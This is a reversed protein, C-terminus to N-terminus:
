AELSKNFVYSTKNFHMKEEYFRHADKRVLGSSLALCHCGAKRGIEELRTILLEGYGKSRENHDTILDYVWIHKNYYLNVLIAFGALAVIRDDEKVALLRYGEEMMTTVLNIYEREGLHTRLQSMIPFTENIEEERRLEVIQM